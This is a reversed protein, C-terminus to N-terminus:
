PCREGAKVVIELALLVEKIENLTCGKGEDEFAKTGTETTDVFRGFAEAKEDEIVDFVEKGM